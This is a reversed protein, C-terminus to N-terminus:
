AHRVARRTPRRTSHGNAVQKVVWERADSLREATAERLHEARRALVRSARGLRRTAKNQLARVRQGIRRRTAQGSAPACLLATISGATAGLAFAGIAGWIGRARRNEKM